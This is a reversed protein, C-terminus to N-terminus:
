APGIKALASDDGGGVAKAADRATEAFKQEDAKNKGAWFQAIHDFNEAMTNAATQAAATDKAAVAKRLAGNAGAAAKMWTQYQALDDQAVLGAACFAAISFVIPAKRMTNLM